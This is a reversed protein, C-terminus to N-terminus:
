DGAQRDYLAFYLDQPKVRLITGTEVSRPEPDGYNPTNEKLNRMVGWLLASGGTPDGFVAWHTVVGWNSTSEAFQIESMNRVVGDTPAATFSPTIPVRAYSGGAPETVSGGNADPETKSVALYLTAPIPTKGATNFVNSVTINKFAASSAM